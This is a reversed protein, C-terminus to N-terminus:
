KRFGGNQPVRVVIIAYHACFVIRIILARLNAADCCEVDSETAWMAVSVTLVRAVGSVMQQLLVRLLLM